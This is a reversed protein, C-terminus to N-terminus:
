KHILEQIHTRHLRDVEQECRAPTEHYWLSFRRTRTNAYLWNDAATDWDRAVIAATAKPFKLPADAGLQYLWNAIALQVLFPYDDYEPFYRYVGKMMIHYDYKFWNDIQEDSVIDGLKWKTLENELLKHGIGGHLIGAVKYIKNKRGEVHELDTKIEDFLSMPKEKPENKTETVIPVPKETMHQHDPQHMEPLDKNQHLSYLIGVIALLIAALWFTIWVNFFQKM